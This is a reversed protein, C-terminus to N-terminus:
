ALSKKIVSVIKECFADSEEVTPGEVMVRCLSQTGSYRVLVRGKEGLEGEVQRICEAVEPLSELPPKRKVRVNKLVQPYVRMASSLTSLPQWSKKMIKLLHIASLIGDGTTHLDRFVMHGSDEGGLIAGRHILEKVVHRDGVDTMVHRIGREALFSHLGVNSMVTTVVTNNALRGEQKMFEAFIAILQDGSLVRGTEDVAILRDGDGDFALGLDAKKEIVKRALNEPHESGCGDNINRGDPVISMPDTEAGADRFLAPAIRCTAGHSCDVVVQLGAFPATEGCIGRLFRFYGSAAEEPLYRIVGPEPVSEGSKDPPSAETVFAEIAVEEEDSLKYGDSNFIKIGNDEYPNHSASIVVGRAAKMTRTLYAVGPTPMVDALYVDVGSAAAGAALSMALMDGSIRTDKGIIIFPPTEGRRNIGMSLARGVRLAMEPTMPYHNAKGRIGDTGFLKGM